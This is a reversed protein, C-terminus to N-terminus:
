LKFVLSVVQILSLTMYCIYVYFHICMFIVNLYEQRVMLQLQYNKIPKCTQSEYDRINYMFYSDLFKFLKNIIINAM